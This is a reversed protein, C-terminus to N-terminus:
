YCYNVLTDAVLRLLGMEDTTTNPYKDILKNLFEKSKELITKRLKNYTNVCEIVNLKNLYIYLKKMGRINDEYQSNYSSDIILQRLADIIDMQRKSDETRSELSELSDPNANDQMIMGMDELKGKREEQQKKACYQAESLDIDEDKPDIVKSIPNVVAKVSYNENMYKVNYKNQKALRLSRRDGKKNYYSAM